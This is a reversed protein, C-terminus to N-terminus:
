YNSIIGSVSKQKQQKAKPTTDLFKNSLDIDLLKKGINEELLKITELWVNLDKSWKSTVKTLQTLYTDLKM